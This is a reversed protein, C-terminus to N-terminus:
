GIHYRSKKKGVMLYTLGHVLADLRNPSETIEDFDTETLEAELAPYDGVHCVHDQEYLMSVPEARAMKGVSSHVLEVKIFPDINHIADAVLDGGQNKEAVICNAEYAHYAGVARQAWKRTSMKGSLDGRVVGMREIDISCPIIGCEDSNPNNSVSPDVAIVTKRFEGPERLRARVVMEDTWLAGEVDALYEGKLFRLRQRKPLSELAHIYEPSLNAVNHGPNVQLYAVQLDHPTKDPLTKELFLLNTWHKKGPPNCDYYFRQELGSNEALRTWLLTIAEFPIQSCENAYITSNHLIFGDGIFTKTTTGMAVVSGVNLEEVELVLADPSSKTALKTGEWLARSKQLLRVPRLTGLLRLKEIKSPVHIVFHRDTKQQPLRMYEKFDVDQSELIRRMEDLVPGENQGVVVQGTKSVCGEGDFIGALWGGDRSDDVDWPRSFFKLRDGPRVNKAMVWETDNKNDKSLFMHRASVIIEGQDTKVRFKRTQIIDSRTVVSARLKRCSGRGIDPSEEDVGILEDGPVLSDARVWRLDATLVKTKPDVCYENGLIKEVRDKDDTGGIWIQSEGGRATPVTWYGDAKNEKAIVGPFCNALVWPITEHGLSIRAHNYRYRVILHKSPRKLARLFINRVVIVTKGSRAGGYLMAHRNHNLIDLAEVQRSTKVFEGM